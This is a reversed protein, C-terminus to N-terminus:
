AISVDEFIPRIYTRQYKKNAVKREIFDAMKGLEENTLLTSAEEICSNLRSFNPNEAIKLHIANEFAELEKVKMTKGNMLRFVRTIQIGTNASVQRLTQNPFFLRYREITKNQLNM